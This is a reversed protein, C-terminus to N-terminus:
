KLLQKLVTFVKECIDNDKQPHSQDLLDWFKGPLAIYNLVIAIYQIYSFM